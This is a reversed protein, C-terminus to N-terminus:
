KLRKDLPVYKLTDRKGGCNRTQLVLEGKQSNAMYIKTEYCTIKYQCKKGTTTTLKGLYTYILADQTADYKVKLDGNTEECRCEFEPDSEEPVFCFESGANNTEVFESYGAHDIMKGNRVVLYAVGKEYNGGSYAGENWFEFLTYPGLQQMSPEEIIDFAFGDIVTDTLIWCSDTKQFIAIDERYLSHGHQTGSSALLRIMVYENNEEKFKFRSDISLYTTDTGDNMDIIMVEDKGYLAQFISTDELNPLTIFTTKTTTISDKSPTKTSQTPMM